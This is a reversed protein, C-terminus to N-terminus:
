SFEEHEMLKLIDYYQPKKEEQITLIQAVEFCPAKMKMLVVTRVLLGVLNDWISALTSLLYTVQNDKKPFYIFKLEDFQKKLDEIYDFYPKFKEKRGEQEKNIQSIVLKSDGFVKIRSEQLQSLKIIPLKFYESINNTVGFDFKNTISIQYSIPSVLIIVIGAGKKNMAGDFYM